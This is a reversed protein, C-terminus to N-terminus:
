YSLRVRDHATPLEPLYVSKYENSIHIILTGTGQVEITDALIAFLSSYDGIVGNGSILLSQKPFYVVGNIDMLGGGTIENSKLPISNPAQTIVFGAFPGDSPATILLNAGGQNIFRTSSNGVLLITVGDGKLTAGARVEFEGDRVVYVGPNMTVTGSFVKFGGCYVGPTITTDAKVPSPNDAASKCSTTDTVALAAALTAAAPDEERYCNTEPTPTFSGPAGSYDGYVCFLEAEASATGTQHLANTASSNVHVACGKAMIKASGQVSLSKEVSKNIAMMCIPNGKKVNATAEVGLKMTEAFFKTLVQKTEVKVTMHVKKTPFDVTVVPTATLSALLKKSVNAYFTDEAMKVKDTDSKGTSLSIASALVGADAAAQLEAKMRVANALDVAAAVAMTFPIFALTAAISVNGRASHRFRCMRRALATLSRPM